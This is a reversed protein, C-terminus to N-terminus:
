PQPHIGNGGKTLCWPCFHKGNIEKWTL